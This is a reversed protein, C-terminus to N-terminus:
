FKLNISFLYSRTNPMNFYDMGQANHAGMLSTEPDVGKYDTSLWLNRGTLTIGLESIFGIADIISKPLTYNLSVERLRLWSTEEIFDETNSGFFGNGNGFALWNEDLKSVIDNPGSKILNNNIDFHGKIGDFVKTSGRVETDKHTGFYYLAGRTGNWIKGGQRIDFLFSFRVSGWSENSLTLSNTIGMTWDPQSSGFAKENQTDLIPFGYNANLVTDGDEIVVNGKEDRAYPDDDIIVKGTAPDRLWGFGYISGYPQGAVARISSGEFGGIFIQDIGEALKVVENKNKSFNLNLDWRLWDMNVPTANLVIEFGTNKLEGANMVMRWYGTENAVPVNFIQDVNNQNYYTFDLGFMNDLFNLALGVEWSTTKEPRLQDSGLIDGKVFGVQGLFPFAIGDTWGDTYAANIYPTTTGYLPADKGVSALNFRIKGFNIFSDAFIDKFLETFIFSVNGGGYLFSNNNKPLTTSWENRLSLNFYLWDMYELTLDGYFGARRLRDNSERLISGAANTIHYFDPIIM